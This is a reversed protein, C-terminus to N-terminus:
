VMYDSTCYFPAFGNQINIVSYFAKCYNLNSFISIILVSTLLLSGEVYTVNDVYPITAKSVGNM